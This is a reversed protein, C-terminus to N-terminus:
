EHEAELIADLARRAKGICFHDAEDRLSGEMDVWYNPGAVAAIRPLEARLTDPGLGGAYGCVHDPLAKPWEKRLLGRGGSSDFLVQHSPSRITDHLMPNSDFQTIYAYADGEGMYRRLAGVSDGLFVGNLQIRRFPWLSIALGNGALLDSRARGCVHLAVRGIGYGNEIQRVTEAIWIFPPYRGAGERSESYLFGLEIRQDAHLLAFIESIDCSPDVGTFTIKSPGM